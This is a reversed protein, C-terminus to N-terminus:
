CKRPLATKMVKTIRLPSFPVLLGRALFPAGLAAAANPHLFATVPHWIRSLGSGVRVLASVRAQLPKLVWTHSGGEPPNHGAATM